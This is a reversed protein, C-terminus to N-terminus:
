MKEGTRWKVNQEYRNTKFKIKRKYYQLVVHHHRYNGASVHRLPSWYIFIFDNTTNHQDSLCYAAFESGTTNRDSSMLQTSM